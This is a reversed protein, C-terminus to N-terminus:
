AYGVFSFIFEKSNHLYNTSSLKQVAVSVRSYTIQTKQLKINMSQISTSMQVPVNIKMSFSVIKIGIKTNAAINIM